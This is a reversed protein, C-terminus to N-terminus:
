KNVVIKFYGWRGLTLTKRVARNTAMKLVAHLHCVNKIQRNIQIIYFSTQCLSSLWPHRLLCCRFRTCYDLTLRTCQPPLISKCCCICSSHGGLWLWISYLSTCLNPLVPIGGLSLHLHWYLHRLLTWQRNQKDNLLALSPKRLWFWLFPQQMDRGGGFVM